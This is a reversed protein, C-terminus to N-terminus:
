FKPPRAAIEAAVRQVEDHVLGNSVLISSGGPNYPGGSLDTVNGGAETVILM